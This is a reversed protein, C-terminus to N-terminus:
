EDALICFYSLFGLIVEVICGFTLRNSEFLFFTIKKKRGKTTRHFFFHLWFFVRQTKINQLLGLVVGKVSGGGGGGGGVGDRRGGTARQSGRRGGLM